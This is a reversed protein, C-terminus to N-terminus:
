STYYTHLDGQQLVYDELTKVAPFFRASDSSNFAHRMSDHLEIYKPDQKIDIDAFTNVTGMTVALIVIWRKTNM